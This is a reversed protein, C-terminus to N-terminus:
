GSAHADFHLPARRTRAGGAGGREARRARENTRSAEDLSPAQAKRRTARGSVFAPTPTEDDAPVGLRLASDPAKRKEARAGPASVPSALVDPTAAESTSPGVPESSPSPLASSSRLAPLEFILPSEADSCAVLLVTSKDPSGHRTRDLRAVLALVAPKEAADYDQLLADFSIDGTLLQDIAFEVAESCLATQFALPTSTEALSTAEDSGVVAM